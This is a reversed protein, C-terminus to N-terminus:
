HARRQLLEERSALLGALLEEGRALLRALQALLQEHRPADGHPLDKVADWLVEEGWTERCLALFPEVDRGFGNQATLILCSIFNFRLAAARADVDGATAAAGGGPNQM